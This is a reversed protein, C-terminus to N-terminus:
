PLSWSLGIVVSQVVSDRDSIDASASLQASSDKILCLENNGQMESWTRACTCYGSYLSRVSLIM